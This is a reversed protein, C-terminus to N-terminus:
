GPAARRDGERRKAIGGVYDLEIDADPPIPQAPTSRPGASPQQRRQAAIDPASSGPRGGPRAPKLRTALRATRRPQRRDRVARHTQVPHGALKTIRELVALLHWGRDDGAFAHVEDVIVTRLDAFLRHHDVKTSVLMSEISEPTTLLLDPPDRLIRQRAATDVDGHWLAVRRGLWDAYRALRPELNNLLAKIPCVYLVTLGATPRRSIASLVPFVAAETKGGATPALLLADLGDLVPKSRQRKCPGCDPGGLSNVIHHVLSPHLREIADAQTTV